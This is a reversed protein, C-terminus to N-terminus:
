YEEPPQHTVLFYTMESAVRGVEQLLNDIKSALVTHFVQCLLSAVLGATMCILANTLDPAIQLLGTFNGGQARMAELLHAIGLFMGVLGLVPLWGSLAGLLRLNRELKPITLRVQDDIAYRMGMEGDKWHEIATRIVEGIVGTHGDCNVIAEKVNGNRLQTMLGRVLENSDIRNRHLYLCREVFFIMAIFLSLLIVYIMGGNDVLIKQLLDIM